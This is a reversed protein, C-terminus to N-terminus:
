RFIFSPLDVTVKEILDQALCGQPMVTNPSISILSTVHDFCKQEDVPTDMLSWLEILTSGLNQLQLVYHLYPDNNMFVFLGIDFPFCEQTCM